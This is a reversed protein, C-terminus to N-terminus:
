DRINNTLEKEMDNEKVSLVLVIASAFTIGAVMNKLYVRQSPTDIL